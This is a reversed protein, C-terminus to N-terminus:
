QGRFAQAVAEPYEKRCCEKEIKREAKIEKEKVQKEGIKMEILLDNAKDRASQGQAVDGSCNWDAHQHLPKRPGEWRQV